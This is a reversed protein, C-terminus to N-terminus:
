QGPLRSNGKNKRVYKIIYNNFEETDNNLFEAEVPLYWVSSTFWDPLGEAMRLRIADKETTFIFLQRDNGTQAKPKLREIEAVTFPHHDPFAALHVEAAFSKIYDVLPAPNAIGTVLLVESGKADGIDAISRAKEPFVPVPRGYKLTTFYLEQYPYKGINRFTIRRDMPSLTAPTKTVLIIDARRINSRHERLMGCPLLCDSIYLNSYETLVVSIGPTVSRHQFGDDMIIVETGPRQREIEAIGNNRNRDVAVTIDGHKMALQLPEDGAMAVTDIATVIRFGRSARKYGRSLVAVRFHPKLLSVLYDVHTTKGTGGAALNGVCIVPIDYEKSPLIGKNYLFNRVAVVLGYLM